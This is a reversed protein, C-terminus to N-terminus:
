PIAFGTGWRGDSEDIVVRIQSGRKFGDIVKASPVPFKLEVLDDLEWRAGTEGPGQLEVHDVRMWVWYSAHPKMDANIYSFSLEGRRACGMRVLLGDSELYGYGADIRGGELPILIWELKSDALPKARSWDAMPLETAVASVVLGVLWSAICTIRLGVM